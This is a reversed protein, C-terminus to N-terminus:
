PKETQFIRIELNTDHAGDTRAAEGTQQGLEASTLLADLQLKDLPTGVESERNSSDPSISTAM